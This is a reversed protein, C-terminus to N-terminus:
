SQKRGATTERAPANAVGRAVVEELQELRRELPAIARQVADAIVEEMTRSM